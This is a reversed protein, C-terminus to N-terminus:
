GHHSVEKPQFQIGSAWALLTVEATSLGLEVAHALAREIDHQIETQQAAFYAGDM